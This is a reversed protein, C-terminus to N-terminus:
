DETDNDVGESIQSTFLLLFLLNELGGAEDTTLLCMFLSQKHYTM